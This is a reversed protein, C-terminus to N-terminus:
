AYVQRGAPLRSVDFTLRSIHLRSGGHNNPATMGVFFPDSNFILAVKSFFLFTINNKSSCREEIRRKKDMMRNYHGVIAAGVTGCM